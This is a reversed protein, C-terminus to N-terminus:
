RVGKGGGRSDFVSQINKGCVQFKFFVELPVRQSLQYYSKDSWHIAPHEDPLDYATDKLLHFTHNMRRNWYQHRGDYDDDQKPIIIKINTRPHIRFQFITRRLEMDIYELFVLRKPTRNWAENSRPTIFGPHRIFPPTFDRRDCLWYHGNVFSSGDRWLKSKIITGCFGPTYLALVQYKVPIGFTRAFNNALWKGKGKEPGFSFNRRSEDLQLASYLDRDRRNKDLMMQKVCFVSIKIKSLDKSCILAMDRSCQMFSRVEQPTIFKCVAELLDDPLTSICNSPQVPSPEIVRLM